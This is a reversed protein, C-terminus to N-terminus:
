WEDEDQVAEVGESSCWPCVRDDRGKFYEGCYDCVYLM